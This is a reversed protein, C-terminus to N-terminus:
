NAANLVRQCVPQAAGNSGSIPNRMFIMIVSRAKFAMLGAAAPLRFNTQSAATGPKPTATVSLPVTLKMMM